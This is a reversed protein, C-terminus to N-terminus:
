GGREGNRNIITQNTASAKITPMKLAAPASLTKHRRAAVRKTELAVYKTNRGANRERERKYEVTFRTGLRSRVRSRTSRTRAVERWERRRRWIPCYNPVLESDVVFCPVFKLLCTSADAAPENLIMMPSASRQCRSPPAFPEFPCVSRPLEIPRSMLVFTGGDEDRRDLVGLSRDEIKRSVSRSRRNKSQSFSYPEELKRQEEVLNAVRVLSGFYVAFRSADNQLRSKSLSPRNM